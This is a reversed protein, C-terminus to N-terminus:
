VDIVDDPKRRDAPRSAARPATLRTFVLNTVGVILAGGMAAWFGSVAFGEVLRGVLM